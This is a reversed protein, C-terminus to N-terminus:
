IGYEGWWNDWEDEDWCGDVGKKKCLQNSAYDSLLNPFWAHIILSLGIKTAHLWHQWYGMGADKLHKM